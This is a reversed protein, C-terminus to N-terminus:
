KAHEKAFSTVLTSFQTPHEIPLLHGCQEIMEVRSAPIHKAFEAAYGAPLVKDQAGWIIQTPCTVRHLWKKLGPDFLRPEWAIRALTLASKYTNDFDRIPDIGALQREALKQDYYFNQIREETPWLFIDGRRLGDAYIGAPACLSLTKILSPNRIAMELAIWGGISSGAVHWSSGGEAELLDLYFYALDHITELWDADASAGFGPHEPAFVDFHDALQELFPHPEGGQELGHLYLLRPGKGGRL